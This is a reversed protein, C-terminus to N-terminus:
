PAAVVQYIEGAGYHLLYLEGDHDEAFSAINLGSALLEVGATGQTSAAPISWVRGSGFDGYVYHGQLAAIASGRYVYGGTVSNGDSRGYETIPDVFNTGCGSSPNFCHAGERERWGYNMSREILDIEEWSGQGVDGLWLNGTLSDFSWRWPNRLGWAYIEPCNAGGIAFGDQCLAAGAFPNNTPIAYPNGTDIDIRTISGPLNSLDQARNLPDGGGGGDGWGAYLYGDPGFAINGGNHNASDQLVTMIPIEGLPNLTVGGDGSDFRAVNSVLPAGSSTYSLYVQGNSAFDPHFAMGLLGSESFSSDVRAAIDVFVSSVTVNPDNDFVRVIGQKEVVFWRSSDGPAQLMAVPASFSLMPFVRQLAIQPDATPPPPPPAPANSDYSSGGCAALALLSGMVAIAAVRRIITNM